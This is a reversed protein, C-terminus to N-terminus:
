EEVMIIYPPQDSTHITSDNNARLMEMVHSERSKETLMSSTSLTKFKLNNLTTTLQDIELQKQQCSYRNSIYLVVFLTIILILWTQKRITETNLIDGGLIKRLTFSSSAPQEDERATEKIVERLSPHSPADDDAAMESDADDIGYDPEKDRFDESTNDEEIYKNIEKDETM